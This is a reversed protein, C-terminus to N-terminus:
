CAGLRARTEMGCLGVRFGCTWCRRREWRPGDTDFGLLGSSGEPEALESDCGPNSFGLSRESRAAGGGGSAHEASARGMDARRKSIRAAHGEEARVGLIVTRARTARAGRRYFPSAEAAGRSWRGMRRRV